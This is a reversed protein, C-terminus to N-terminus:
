EQALIQNFLIKYVAACDAAGVSGARIGKHPVPPHKRRRISVTKYANNCVTAAAITVTEIAPGDSVGRWCCCCCGCGCGAACCRPHLNTRRMWIFRTRVLQLVQLLGDLSRSLKLLPLRGIALRVLKKSVVHRTLARIHLWTGSTVTHYKPVLTAVVHSTRPAFRIEAKNTSFIIGTLGSLPAVATGGTRSLLLLMELSSIQKM